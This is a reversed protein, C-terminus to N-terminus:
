GVLANDARLDGHVLTPGTLLEGARRALAYAEDHREPHTPPTVRRWAQPWSATEESFTRLDMTAPAPTFEEAMVALADLCAELDPRSWPRSVPPAKVHATSFAIWETDEDVWLLA